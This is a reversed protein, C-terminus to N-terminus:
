RKDFMRQFRRADSEEWYKVVSPWPVGKEAALRKFSALAAKLSKAKGDAFQSICRVAVAEGEERISWADHLKIGPPDATRLCMMLHPCAKDLAREKYVQRESIGRRRAQAKVTEGAGALAGVQTKLVDALAEISPSM